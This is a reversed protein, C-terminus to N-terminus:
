RAGLAAVIEALQAEASAPKLLCSGAGAHGGGGYRAMLAGIDVTSTRNLVSRGVSVAVGERIPDTQLRVSVQAEPYLTYVLFRNGAPPKLLARFDTVIVPGEVRSHAQLGERFVRDQESMRTVREHVEPYDLIEELSEEKLGDLLLHFYDDIPGLGSRPDLTFGLLIFGQPSRIDDVSLQASDLRNVERLLPQYRSLEPHQPSYHDYVIQAASPAKSYRRALEEPPRAESATKLENDFWLGAAPHFPLNALIDSSSITLESSVIEQPQVLRVWDIEECSTIMAACALGDLDGRTVLRKIPGGEESRGSNYHFHTLRV